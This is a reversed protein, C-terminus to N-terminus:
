ADVRTWGSPIGSTGTSWNTSAPTVFTGTSAVGRLWDYTPNYNMETALCKIYKLNRCGEFMNNYCHNRIVSAPLEPAQTLNICDKFMGAYCYDKTVASIAPLYDIPVGTLSTCGWFMRNYCNGALTTAPLEPAQTLSTCGRFMYEYCFSDITTAPLAPATTLSTCGAFMSGYCENVVKTAPLEPAGTLSTCGSFMGAYCSTSLTTAPLLLKSADTLGTCNSFLLPLSYSNFTEVGLSTLSAFDTSNIMSMINGEISFSGNTSLISSYLTSYEYTGYSENDGRFQVTDGSEVSISPATDGTESTISTWEGGNKSYEITRAPVITKQRKWVIEGASQMKFTLPMEEIPVVSNWDIRDEDQLYAVYPKNLTGADIASQVDAATSYSNIYRAM